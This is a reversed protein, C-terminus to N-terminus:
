GLLERSGGSGLIEIIYFRHPDFEVPWFDREGPESIEGIADLIMIKNAQNDCTQPVMPDGHEMNMLPITATAPDGHVVGDPLDGFALLVMEGNDEVDDDYAKVLFAMSIEGPDFFLMAPVGIWDDSTAGDGGEATIPISIRETAARSLEVMVTAGDGGEEANYMSESYAIRLPDLITVTAQDAGGSNVGDPFSGFDLLVQEGDDEAEDVAATFAFTQETEGSGFIVNAPVGSYDDSEAGGQDATALPVIVEREPDASLTVTVEVTGGEDVTYAAQGFNVTVEPGNGDTISVITEATGGAAVADPLTGFTLKVSEGDDDETDYTASFTFSKETEGSGFIVSAPVGSYDDSEAGGQDATALPVIVEREPDASLTVTVEVTGGEDVTYAAQGFNVTVEPGNGDTISVITEATGGAAVADPLTGFTLKVSEGDDDETDYTASFTFSKETEGSGFIVSAPVGSHDDVSAGYQHTKILPIEVTREPDVSLTVKVTISAGEDVVYAAQGFSVDVATDNDRVTVSVSDAAADQYLVDDSAVSHTITAAPEDEGDEDQSGTVYVYKADWSEPTFIIVGPIVTFGADVPLNATVTVNSTPESNLSIEYSQQSGEIVTVSKIPITVGATDDDTIIVEDAAVELDPNSATGRIEVTEDPGDLNDNLVSLLMTSSASSKGATIILPSLLSGSASRTKLGTNDSEVRVVNTDIRVDESLTSDGELTATVDSSLTGASESVTRDSLNLRITTPEPDDDEITLTVGNVPIGPVTNKGRVALHEPGEHITDQVPTITLTVSASLGGAPITLTTTSWAITYDDTVTATVDVLSLDVVTDEGRTDGGILTAKVPLSVAAGESIPTAPVSLVISTPASYVDKITLAAGTVTLGPTDGSIELAEDGELASDELVTFDLTGAASMEGAPITLTVTAAEFDDGVTATGSSATVIVVTDAQRVAQGVLSATVNLPTMGSTEYLINPLVSLAVEGPPTDNDEIVIGLEDNGTLAPSRAVLWANEDDEAINDDVPTLTVFTTVSSQGAPVVVNATTATYDDGLTANPRDLLEITVPTDITLQTTGDLTVTVDIKTAGAGENMRAPAVSVTLGDPASDNDVITVLAEAAELPLEKTGARVDELAVRFTEDGEALTDETTTVTFTASLDGAPITVTGASVAYDVGPKATEDPSLEEGAQRTTWAAAVDQSTETSLHVTFTATSGEDVRTDGEVSAALADGDLITAEATSLTLM